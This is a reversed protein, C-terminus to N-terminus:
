SQSLWQMAIDYMMLQKYGNVWDSVCDNLWYVDKFLMQTIFEKELGTKQTLEGDVGCERLDYSCNRREPLFQNLVHNPNYWLRTFLSEDTSDVLERVTLQNAPYLGSCIGRRVVAKVRQETSFGYWTSAAFLLKDVEVSRYMYVLVLHRRVPWTSAFYMTCMSDSLVLQRIPSQLVSLTSLVAVGLIKVFSHYEQFFLQHALKNVRCEVHPYLKLLSGIIWSWIIRAQGHRLEAFRTDANCAPLILCTDDAYICM